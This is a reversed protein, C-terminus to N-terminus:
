DGRPSATPAKNDTHVEVFQRLVTRTRHDPAAIGGPYLGRLYLLEEPPKSVTAEKGNAHLFNRVRQLHRGKSWAAFAQATDKDATLPELTPRFRSLEDRRQPVLMCFPEGKEFSVKFGPRTLKWNMTFTAIAWDTEILGELPSIGDKPHNSPGRALSNWGPPTRFVYPVLFSLVGNGFSDDVTPPWPPEGDHEIVLSGKRVDGNWTVHFTAPNLLLWGNENAMMLPLCKKANAGFPGAIWGRNRPAPVVPVREHNPLTLAKLPLESCEDSVLDPSQPPQNHRVNLDYGQAPSQWGTKRQGRM